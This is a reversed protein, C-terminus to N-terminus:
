EDSDLVYYNVDEGCFPCFVPEDVDDPNEVIVEVDAECYNCTVGFYRNIL